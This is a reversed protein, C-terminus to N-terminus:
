AQEQGEKRPTVEKWGGRLERGGGLVLKWKGISPGIAEIERDKYGRM